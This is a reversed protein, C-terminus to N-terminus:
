TQRPYTACSMVLIAVGLLCLGNKERMLRVILKPSAGRGTREHVRAILGRHSLGDPAEEIVRRVENIRRENPRLPNPKQRPATMPPLVEISRRREFLSLFSGRLKRLLKMM